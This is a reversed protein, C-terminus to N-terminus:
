LRTDYRNKIKYQKEKEIQKVAKETAEAVLQKYIDLNEKDFVIKRVEDNKQM